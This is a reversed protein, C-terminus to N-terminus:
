YPLPPPPTDQGVLLFRRRGALPPAAGRDPELLFLDARRFGARDRSIRAGLDLVGAQGPRGGRACDPLRAARCARREPGGADAAAAASCPRTVLRTRNTRLSPRSTDVKYPLSPPPLPASCPHTGYGARPQPFPRPDHRGWRNHGAGHHPVRAPGDGARRRHARRGVRVGRFRHLRRPATAGRAHPGAVQSRDPEERPARPVPPPSDGARSLPCLPTRPPPRRPGQRPMRDDVIVPSFGGGGSDLGGRLSLRRVGEVSRPGVGRASPVALTVLRTKEVIALLAPCIRRASRPCVGQWGQAVVRSGRTGLVGSGPQPLAFAGPPACLLLLALLQVFTATSGVAAVLRAASM